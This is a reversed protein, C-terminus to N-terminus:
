EEEEEDEREKQVITKAATVLDEYHRAILKAKAVGIAMIPAAGVRDGEDDLEWIQILRRGQYKGIVVTTEEPIPYEGAKRKRAM